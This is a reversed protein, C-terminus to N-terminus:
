MTVAIPHPVDGTSRPPIPEFGVVLLGVKPVNFGARLVHVEQDHGHLWRLWEEKEHGKQLKLKQLESRRALDSIMAFHPFAISRIIEQSGTPVAGVSAVCECIKTFAETSSVHDLYFSASVHPPDPHLNSDSM